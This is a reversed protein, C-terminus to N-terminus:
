ELEVEFMSTWYRKGNVKYAIGGNYYMYENEDLGKPSMLSVQKMNKFKVSYVSNTVNGGKVVTLTDAFAASSILLFMLGILIKKM